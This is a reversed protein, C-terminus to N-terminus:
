FDDSGNEPIPNGNSKDNYIVKQLDEIEKKLKAVQTELMVNSNFLEFSKQQYNGIINKYDEESM